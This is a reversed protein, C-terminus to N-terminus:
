LDYFRWAYTWTETLLRGGARLTAGVIGVSDKEFEVDLMVRMGKIASNPVVFKRQVAASRAWTEIHLLGPDHLFYDLEGGAFDVILRRALAKGAEASGLARAPASFTNVAYALPHLELGNDLAHLRYSFTLDKGAELPARPVFAAVINDATEDKTALEILEVVGDGWDSTPEVWYSPRQEYNLEVDQYSEFRRDRQM